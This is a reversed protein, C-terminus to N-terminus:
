TSAPRAIRRAQVMRWLHYVPVGLLLIGLSLATQGPRLVAGNVMLAVSVVLFGAPLWPYGFVRYIRHRAENPYRSRLRFVAGVALAYFPWIGLVFLEALQEFTRAAIGVIGLGMFLLVSIHPTRYRPHVNGVARFFLGDRAMAYFIRPSSLLTGNLSGFTSLMVLAAVMASGATGFVREAATAAVMPSHAVEAIPLVYLFAANALLYVILVVAFGGAMARPFNRAPDIVEGVVYTADVWGVYTWLVGILAVGFGGWSIPTLSFPGHLSGQGPTGFILLLLALATLTLVKAATSLNQVAASWRVSRMNALSLVVLLAAALVRQGGDSLPVFVSAYSAFILCVAALGAPGTILLKVWGFLFAIQPGWAERLFAYAGGAQPYASCLEALTLAGALTVVAGFVWLLAAGGVTGVEAAVQAPVRFIGSGIVVGVLVSSISILGLSRPLRDESVAQRESSSAM